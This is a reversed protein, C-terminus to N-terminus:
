TAPWNREAAEAERLRKRLELTLAKEDGTWLWVPDFGHVKERLHLAADRPVRRFGVEYNSVAEQTWGLFRAWRSQSDAYGEARRLARMRVAEPHNKSDTKKEAM